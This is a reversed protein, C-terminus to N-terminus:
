LTGGKSDGNMEKRRVQHAAVLSVLAEDIVHAVMPIAEVIRGSFGERKKMFQTAAHIIPDRHLIFAEVSTTLPLGLEGLMRGLDRGVTRTDEITTERKSPETIYKIILTLMSRGLQALHDQSAPTLEGYWSTNEIAKRSIERHLDISGELESVLDKIGHVRTQTNLLKKLDTRSYRRHGGPTIFAKIRGEDTWQRLTAESVGLVQSAERISVLSETTM